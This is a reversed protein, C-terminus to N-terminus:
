GAAALILAEAAARADKAAQPDDLIAASAQAGEALIAIQTGLVDPLGAERALGVLDDRFATKHNRVAAAVKESTSGLEGFSNIFVCGRFDAERFFTDLFDFVALLKQRPTAGAPIAAAICSDWMVSRRHLVRSITTLWVRVIAFSKRMM